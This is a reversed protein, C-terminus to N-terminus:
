IQSFNRYIEILDCLFYHNRVIKNCASILKNFMNEFM